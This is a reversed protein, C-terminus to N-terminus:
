KLPNEELQAQPQLQQQVTVPHPILEAAPGAAPAAQYDAENLHYELSEKQHLNEL